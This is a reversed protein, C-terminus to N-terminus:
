LRTSILNLPSNIDARDSREGAPLSTIEPASPTKLPGGHLINGTLLVLATAMTVAIDKLVFNSGEWKLSQSRVPRGPDLGTPSSIKRGDLGPGPAWGAEQVIPVPDKGPPLTRDPRATSWEGGELAVTM